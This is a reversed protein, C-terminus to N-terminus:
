LKGGVDRVAHVRLWEISEVQRTNDASYYLKREEFEKTLREFYEARLGYIKDIIRKIGLTMKSGQDLDALADGRRESNFSLGILYVEENTVPSTYPKFIYTEEFVSMVNHIAKTATDNLMSGLRLIMNGENKLTLLACRLYGLTKNDINGSIYLELSEGIEDSVRIVEDEDEMDGNNENIVVGETTPPSMLWNTQHNAYHKSDDRFTRSYNCAKWDLDLGKYNTLWWHYFGSIDGSRCGNFFCQYKDRPQILELRNLTEIMKLFNEDAKVNPILSYVNAYPNMSDVFKEWSASVPPELLFYDDFSVESPYKMDNPNLYTLM